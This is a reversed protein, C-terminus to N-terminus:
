VKRIPAQSTDFVRKWCTEYTASEQGRMVCPEVIETFITFRVECFLGAGQIGSVSKRKFKHSSQKLRVVVAFLKEKNKGRPSTAVRDAWGLLGLGLNLQSGFIEAGELLSCTYRKVVGPEAYSTHIM